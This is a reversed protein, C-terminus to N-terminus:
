QRHMKAWTYITEIKNEFLLDLRQKLLRKAKSKLSYIWLKLRKKLLSFRVTTEAINQFQTKPLRDM